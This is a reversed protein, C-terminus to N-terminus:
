EVSRRWKIAASLDATRDVLQEGDFSSIILGDSRQLYKGCTWIVRGNPHDSPTKSIPEYLYRSVPRVDHTSAVEQDM